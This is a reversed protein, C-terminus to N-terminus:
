STHTTQTNSSSRRTSTPHEELLEQVEKDQSQEFAIEKFSLPYAEPFDHEDAAFAEPSFDVETTAMRSLADAVINNEGKVYTLKPGFEEILLRWRMVRETNFHKYV